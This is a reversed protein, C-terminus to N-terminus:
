NKYYYENKSLINGDQDKVHKLRNFTDYEYYVTEGRPDTISTVGILPDYTFTTLRADTLKFNDRLLELKDRLVNETVEDKDNNSASIATNIKTQAASLQADTYGEIKAIPQTQNYGWVYYIKTGDKKSVETPNGKNDYCHFQIRSESGNGAKATKVFEPFVGNTYWEKYETKQHSIQKEPNADIKKYTKVEIPDSIRHLNVLKQVPAVPSIIDEPYITETRLIDNKSDKLTQETLFYSPNNYSFTKETVIPNLGNDDYQTEKTSTLLKKGFSYFGTNYTYTWNNFSCPEDFDNEPHQSSYPVIESVYNFNLKSEDVSQYQNELSMLKTYSSDPNRKSYKVNKLSGTTWSKTFYNSFNGYGHIRLTYIVHPEGYPSVYGACDVDVNYLDPHVFMKFESGGIIRDSYTLEYDYVTKGNNNGLNDYDFESVSSYEISPGGNINLAYSPSSSIINIFSVLDRNLLRLTQYDGLNIPILEKPGSYEFEKKSAFNTNVGDYNTISKIRLGGVLNEVTQIRYGSFEEWSVLVSISPCGSAGPADIGYEMANITYNNNQSLSIDLNYTTAPYSTAGSQLGSRFYKQGNFEVYSQNGYGSLAESFIIKLKADYPISSPSFTRTKLGTDCVGWGTSSGETFVSYGSPTYNPVTETEITKNAEYEFETYGGTPYTIKTLIGAKMKEEDANRNGTGALFSTSGVSVSYPTPHILNTQRADYFTANIQHIFSGNNNNSYGWFDQGSSNRVSLKTTNYEFSYKQPNNTNSYIDISLLKLSKIYHNGGLLGYTKGGNRAYYDYNFTIEKILTDVGNMSSYVKIQKLKPTDSDIRDLSYDFITYGNKFNIRKLVKEHSEYYASRFHVPPNERLTVQDGILERPHAVINNDYELTVNDTRNASIIKTIYSASIYKRYYPQVGSNAWPTKDHEEHENFELQIGNQLIANFHYSYGPGGTLGNVKIPKYDTFTFKQTNQNYYFKGTNGLANFLYEDQATDARGQEGLKSLYNYNALNFDLTSSLDPIDRTDPQGKVNRVIAGGANLTWGLGVWSAEENVRIGSTANYSLSIPIEIDGQKITYLPISVNTTGLNKNVPFVGFKGLSAANPSVPAYTPLEQGISEKFIFILIISLLIKKM